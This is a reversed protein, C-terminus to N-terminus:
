FGDDEMQACLEDLTQLIDTQTKTMKDLRKQVRVIRQQSTRDKRKTTTRNGSANDNGTSSGSSHNKNSSISNSSSSGHKRRREEVDGIALTTAIITATPSTISKTVYSPDMPYEQDDDDVIRENENETIDGELPSWGSPSSSPPRVVQCQKM